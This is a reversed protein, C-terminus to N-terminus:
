NQLNTSSRTAQLTQVCNVTHVPFFLPCGLSFGTTVSRGARKFRAHTPVLPMRSHLNRDFFACRVCYDCGLEAIGLVASDMTFVPVTCLNSLTWTARRMLSLSHENQLISVVRQMVGSALVADRADPGDGAINGLTLLVNEKVAVHPSNDLLHLLNPIARAVERTQTTNGSAISSLAWVAESQVAPSAASQLMNVLAPLAGAELLAQIPPDVASLLKRCHTTAALQHEPSTPQQLVAVLHLLQAHFAAPEVTGSTSPGAAAAAAIASGRDVGGVNGGAGAGAGVGAAMEGSVGGVGGMWGTGAGGGGAGGFLVSMVGGDDDGEEEDMAKNRKKSVTDV